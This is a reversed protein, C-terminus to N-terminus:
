DHRMDGHAQASLRERIRGLVCARSPRETLGANTREPSLIKTRGAEACRYVEAIILSRVDADPIGDLEVENSASPLGGIFDLGASLCFRALQDRVASDGILFIAGASLWKGRSVVRLSFCKREVTHAIHNRLAQLYYAKWERSIRANELAELTASDTAGRVVVIHANGASTEFGLTQSRFGKLLQSTDPPSFNLWLTQSPWVVFHEIPSGELVELASKITPLHVQDSKDSNCACLSFAAICSWRKFVNRRHSTVGNRNHRM